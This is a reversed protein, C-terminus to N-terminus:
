CSFNSPVSFSGRVVHGLEPLSGLMPDEWLRKAPQQFVGGSAENETNAPYLTRVMSIGFGGFPTTPTTSRSILSM